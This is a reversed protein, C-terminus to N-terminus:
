EAIDGKWIALMIWDMNDELKEFKERIVPPLSPFINKDLRGSSPMIISDPHVTGMETIVSDIVSLSDLLFYVNEENNPLIRSLFDIAREKFESMPFGIKISDQYDQCLAAVIPGIPLEFLTRYGKGLILSEVHESLERSVEYYSIM